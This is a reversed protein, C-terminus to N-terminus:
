AVVIRLDGTSSGGGDWTARVTATYSGAKVGTADLRVAAYDEVGVGLATGTSLGSSSGDGPYVVTVGAPPTVTVRFNTAGARRGLFSIQTWVPATRTVTVQATKRVVVDGGPSVVPLTATATVTKATGVCTTAGDAVETYTATLTMPILAVGQTTPVSLRLATYDLSGTRLTDGKSLSTYDATNAPYDVTVNAGAATVRVGCVDDAAAWMTGVWGAQGPLMPSLLPVVLGLDPVAAAAPAAPTLTAAALGMVAAATRLRM